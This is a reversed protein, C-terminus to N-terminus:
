MPRRGRGKRGGRAGGGDGVEEGDLMGHEDQVGGEEEDEGKRATVAGGRRALIRRLEVNTSSQRVRTAAM